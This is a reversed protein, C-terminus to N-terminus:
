AYQEYLRNSFIEQPDYSKKLSVFAKFMPYAKELQEQTGVLQYPLYYSGSLALSKDILLRSWEVTKEYANKNKSVNLYLVLACSDQKTSSLYSEDDKHIHRATVNILNIKYDKVLTKMYTVFANLHEYPIFYEQLIYRTDSTDQPLGKISYGMFNNRSITKSISFYLKELFFRLNKVTQYKRTLSFFGRLIANLVAAKFDRPNFSLSKSSTSTSKEYTVVFVEDLMKSSQLVYRASYFEINKNNKIHQLFYDGLESSKIVVIKRDLLIDDTLQLTVEIIVGMLGYGGIALNFLEQNQTRSVNIIEGQANLLKFSKVTNILPGSTFDQGHVNVSLSGGISFDNFSQMSKVALGHPAILKQLQCWTMGTEVTVQKNRLDLMVLKNLHKLDVRISEEDSMTQGGQSKGAGMICIKKNERSAQHIIEQLESVDKPQNNKSTCTIDFLTTINKTIPNNILSFTSFFGLALTLSYIKKNVIIM